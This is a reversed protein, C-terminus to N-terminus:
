DRTPINAISKNARTSEVIIEDMEEANSELMVEQVKAGDQPFVFSVSKPAYGIYSFTVVVTGNPLNSLVVRGESDTVGRATNGEVLVSVGILLESTTADKVTATFTNQAFTWTIQGIVLLLTITYKAMSNKRFIIISIKQNYNLQL